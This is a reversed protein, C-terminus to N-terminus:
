TKTKSVMKVNGTLAIILPTKGDHQRPKNPDTTRDELLLEVIADHGRALASCLPTTSNDAPNMNRSKSAGLASVM